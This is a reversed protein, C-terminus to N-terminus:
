QLPIGKKRKDVTMLVVFTEGGESTRNFHGNINITALPGSM